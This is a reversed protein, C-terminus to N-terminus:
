VCMNTVYICICWNASARYTMMAIHSSLSGHAIHRDLPPGGFLEVAQATDRTIQPLHVLERICHSSLGDVHLTHHLRAHLCPKDLCHFRADLASSYGQDQASCAFGWTCDYDSRVITHYVHRTRLQSSARQLCVGHTMQACTAAWARSRNCSSGLTRIQWIKHGGSPCTGSANQCAPSMPSTATPSRTAILIRKGFPRIAEWSACRCMPLGIELNEDEKLCDAVVLSVHTVALNDKWLGM